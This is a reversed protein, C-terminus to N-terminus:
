FIRIVTKPDRIKNLNTTGIFCHLIHKVKYEIDNLDYSYFKLILEHKAGAFLSNM